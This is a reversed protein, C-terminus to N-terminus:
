PVLDLEAAKDLYAQLTKRQAATYPSYKGGVEYLHKAPDYGDDEPAKLDELAKTAIYYMSRNNAPNYDSYAYCTEGMYTYEVYAVAAYKETIHKDKINVLAARIEVDGYTAGEAPANVTVGNDIVGPINRIKWGGFTGNAIMEATPKFVGGNADVAEELTIITGFKFDTNDAIAAIAELTAAPITSTFRIGNSGSSLRVSAGEKMTVATEVKAPADDGTVAGEITADFTNVAINALNNIATGATKIETNVLKISGTSGASVYMGARGADNVTNISSNIMTLDMHDNGNGWRIVAATGDKGTTADVTINVDVLDLKIKGRNAAETETGAHGIGNILTYMAVGNGGAVIDVNEVRVEAGEFDAGVEGIQLIGRAGAHNIKMNKLEFDTKPIFVNTASTGCTSFTYGNGDIVTPKTFTSQYTGTTRGGIGLDVDGNLVITNEEATAAAVASKWDTYATGNVTVNAPVNPDGDISLAINDNKTVASADDMKVLVKSDTKIAYGNKADIDTNNLTISGVSGNTNIVNRSGNEDDINSDTMTLRVDEKANGFQIVANTANSHTTEIISSAINLYMTKTVGDDPNNSEHGIANIVIGNGSVNITVDNMDVKSGAYNAGVAGLKFLTGDFSQNVTANKIEFDTQAVFANHVNVNITKKNGDITIKANANNFTRSATYYADMQLDVEVDSTAANAATVVEAWSYYQKTGIAAMGKANNNLTTTAQIDYTNLGQMYSNSDLDVTSNSNNQVVMPRAAKSILTSSLVDIDAHATSEIKIADTSESYIKSGSEIKIKVPYNDGTIVAAYKASIAQGNTSTGIRSLESNTINITYTGATYGTAKRAAIGHYLPNNVTVKANILSVASGGGLMEIGNGTSNCDLVVNVNKLTLSAGDRLTFCDNEGVASDVKYNKVTLTYDDNGNEGDITINGDVWYNNAVSVDSKLNIKVSSSNLSNGYWFAFGFQGSNTVDFSSSLISNTIGTANEVGFNSTKPASYTVNTFSSSAITGGNNAIANGATAHFTSNEVTINATGNSNVKVASGAYLYSNKITVNVTKFQNDGGNGLLVAPMSTGDYITVGDLVVDYQMQDSASPGNNKGLTNIVGYQTTAYISSNYIEIKGTKARSRVVVGNSGNHYITANKIIIGNTNENTVDFANSAKETINKGNGDITYVIPQSLAAQTTGMDIDKELKITVNVTQANAATVAAAFTTYGDNIQDGLSGDTNTKYVRAVITEAAVATFTMVPMAAMVTTAIMVIALLLSIKRKM